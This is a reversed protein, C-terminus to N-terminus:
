EIGISVRRTTRREGKQLHFRLGQPLPPFSTRHTKWPKWLARFRDIVNSGAIAVDDSDRWGRHAIGVSRRRPFDPRGRLNDLAVITTGPADQATKKKAIPNIWVAQPWQTPQPTGKVAREFLAACAALVTMRRARVGDALAHLVAASRRPSRRRGCSPASTTRGRAPRQRGSGKSHTRRRSGGDRSGLRSRRTRPWRRPSRATACSQPLGVAPRRADSTVGGSRSEGITQEASMRRMVNM